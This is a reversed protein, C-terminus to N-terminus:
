RPESRQSSGLPLDGKGAHPLREAKRAIEEREVCIEQGQFEKRWARSGKEEEM